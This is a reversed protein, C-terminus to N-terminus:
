RPLGARAFVEAPIADADKYVHHVCREGPKTGPFQVTTPLGTWEIPQLENHIPCHSCYVPMADLDGLMPGPERLTLYHRDDQYAGSDILMGGSGCAFELTFKEDDEAFRTIAGGNAKMARAVAEAVKRAPVDAVSARRARLFREGFDRLADEVAPEGYREGIFSLLSAIWNISYEKNGLWDSEMLALLRKAEALDGRDMAEEVLTRTSTVVAHDDM